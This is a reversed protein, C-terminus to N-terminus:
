YDQCAAQLKSLGAEGLGSRIALATKLCAQYTKEATRSDPAYGFESAWEEFSGADLVAADLALSYLVDRTEPLIPKGGVARGIHDIGEMTHSPYGNECEWRIARDRMVSRPNGLREAKYAPCHGCGASYDTILIERGGRVLSVRWNLSPSKEAKNRSRSFPVFVAKVELGLAAAAADIREGATQEITEM